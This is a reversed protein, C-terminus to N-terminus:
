VSLDSGHVSLRLPLGTSGPAPRPSSGSREWASHWCARGSPTNIKHAGTNALGELKIYIQAGGLQESARRAHLLPTPRGTYTKAEDEIRHLFEEDAMAESFAQELEDLPARLVEAVYKGGFTGFFGNDSHKM